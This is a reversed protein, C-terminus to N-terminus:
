RREPSLGLRGPHAPGSRAAPPAPESDEAGASSSDDEAAEARAKTEEGTAGEAGGSPEPEVIEGSASSGEADPADAQAAAGAQARKRRDALEAALAESTGPETKLGHKERLARVRPDDAVKQWRIDRALRAAMRGQEAPIRRAHVLAADLDGRELAINALEAVADWDDPTLELAKGFAEEALDLKGAGVRAVGLNLWLSAREPHRQALSLLAQEAADFEGQRGLFIATRLERRLAGDPDARGEGASPETERQTAEAHLDARGSAIGNLAGWAIGGVSLALFGGAWIWHNNM